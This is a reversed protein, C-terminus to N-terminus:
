LTPNNIDKNHQSIKHSAKYDSVENKAKALKDLISEKAVKAIAEKNKQKVEPNTLVSKVKEILTATNRALRQMLSEFVKKILGKQSDSLKGEPATLQKKFNNVIDIDAKITEDKVTETVVECAKEYAKEAVEEAMSDIDSLKILQEAIRAENAEIQEQQKSIIFDNKELHTKGELPIREITVGHKEAIDIYLKRIEADFSMKRNNNKSQKKEPNPIEFGLAECAKEQKPFDMGYGDDAFFVHREHIHPTEEDMHLAWDLVKFNSGYRSEIEQILEAVVQIFIAPNEHGDKTGLQYITEEPCTKPDNLIDKVDRIRETHRSKRHRDNQAEISKGFQNFYFSFEVEDFNYKREPRIGNEDVYNFGQYCDWYVNQICRDSDIHDANELNFTRDNHGAKFTGSKGTRGNHRTARVNKM